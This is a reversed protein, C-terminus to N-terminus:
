KDVFGIGQTGYSIKPYKWHELDKDQWQSDSKKIKAWNTGPTDRWLMGMVTKQLWPQQFIPYTINPVMKLHSLNPCFKFNWDRESLSLGSPRIYSLWLWTNVLRPKRVAGILDTKNFKHSMQFAWHTSTSVSFVIVIVAICIYYGFLLSLRLAHCLMRSLM